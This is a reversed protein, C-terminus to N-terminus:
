PVKLNKIASVKDPSPYIGGDSIIHGLFELKTKNFQCKDRNVKLGSKRIKNLVKLLTVNHEEETRGYIIVDDMYILVNEIGELLECMKRQYIEPATNIGMPLRKFKFRGIPTLFTIYDRYDKDLPIQYFGSAADLKGMFKVGPLRSTLEDFTPIHYIERKLSM